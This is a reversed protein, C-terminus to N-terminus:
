VVAGMSSRAPAAAPRLRSYAMALREVAEVLDEPPLTYPLRLFREVVGEDGLERLMHRLSARDANKLGFARAIERVGAKGKHTGIFAVVDERSPLGVPRHKKAPKKM